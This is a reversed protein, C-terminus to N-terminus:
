RSRWSAGSLHAGVCMEMLRDLVKRAGSDDGNLTLRRALQESGYNTTVILPLQAEYRANVIRFLVMLGWETPRESGLDDIVLLEVREYLSLLEHESAEGEGDYSRRIRSLLDIMTLMIVAHGRAMLEHAVAAALHTKGTGAPGCLFLGNREVQPPESGRPLLAEFREAFGRALYLAERNGPEECFRAFTRRAFRSGLGSDKLLRAAREALQRRAAEGAALAAQARAAAEQEARARVAGECSCPQPAFWVSVTRPQYPHRLGM